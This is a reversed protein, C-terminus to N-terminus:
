ADTTRRTFLHAYRGDITPPEIAARVRDVISVDPSPSRMSGALIGTAQQAGMGVQSVEDVREFEVVHDYGDDGRRTKETPPWRFSFQILEPKARAKAWAASGEPTDTFYHLDTELGDRSEAFNDAWGILLSSDVYGTVHANGHDRYFQVPDASFDSRKIWTRFAGRDIVQCSTNGVAVETDPVGFLAVRVRAVGLDRDRSRELRASLMRGRFTNSFVADVRMAPL